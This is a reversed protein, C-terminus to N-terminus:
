KIHLQCRTATSFESKEVATRGTQGTQTTRGTQGMVRMQGTQVTRRMTGNTMNGKEVVRDLYTRIEDDIEQNSYGNNVLIQKIRTFEVHLLDWSSCVKVARRIFARIVSKKYRSPCESIGNLCKGSCCEGSFM